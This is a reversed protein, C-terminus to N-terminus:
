GVRQRRAQIAEGHDGQRGRAGCAPFGEIMRQLASDASAAPRRDLQKRRETVGAAVRLVGDAPRQRRSRVLISKAGNEVGELVVCPPRQSCREAGQHARAAGIDKSACCAHYRHGKVARPVALPSEILCAIERPMKSQRDDVRQRAHAGGHRLGLQGGVLAAPIEGARERRCALSM